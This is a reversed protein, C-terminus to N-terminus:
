PSRRRSRSRRFAPSRAAWRMPRWRSPRTGADRLAGALAMSFRAAHAGAILQEPNAEPGDEFRSTFSM